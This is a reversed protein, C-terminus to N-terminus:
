LGNAVVLDPEAVVRPLFAQEAPSFFVELCAEVALVVYPLWITGPGSVLLLPLLGVALLLNTFVMTRRRDWRDVLVGAVSGVVVQPVFASLLAAASALTSGTLAYIAYALGVGLVWDGTMSVLGAGLLLSLDPTRRLLQLPIRVVSVM